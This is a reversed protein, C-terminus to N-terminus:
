RPRAIRMAKLTKGRSKLTVLYVGPSAEGVPVVCRGDRRSQRRATWLTKGAPSIVAIDVAGRMSPLPLVLYNGRFGPRRNHVAPRYRPAGLASAGTRLNQIHVNDITFRPGSSAAYYVFRLGTIAGRNLPLAQGAWAPQTFADVSVRVRTWHTGGLSIDAGWYGGDAIDSQAFEVRLHANESSAKIDFVISHAEGISVATGHENMTAEIGAYPHAAGAAPLPRFMLGGTGDKADVAYLLPVTSGGGPRQDTKDSIARWHGGVANRWDGDDFDDVLVDDARFPEDKGSMITLLSRARSQHYEAINDNRFRLDVAEGILFSVSGADAEGNWSASIEAGSGSLTKEAGSSQGTLVITWDADQELKMTITVPGENFDVRDPAATLPELIRILGPPPNHYYRIFATAGIAGANYNIAPELYYFNTSHNQDNPNYVWNYQEVKQADIGAQGPVSPGSVIAGVLDVSGISSANRHHLVSPGGNYHSIFSRSFPSIGAIWHIQQIVFDRYEDRGTILYAMAASFAANGANGCVGWPTNIFAGRILERSSTMPVVRNIAQNVDAFWSGTFGTEGLRTLEFAAFDGAHRYGIADYHQGVERMLDRAWTLFVDESTARYLEAAGCAMKDRWTDADYFEGGGQQDSNRQHGTCFSFAQRAKQLCREAYAADYPAYARYMLALAAAYMGPADAGNALYVTRDGSAQYGSAWVGHDAYANGVDLVITNEDIVAKLLYDTAVKVETLIDPVGDPGAQHDLGHTDDYYRPFLDYGKLLCYASFGLNLGFKVFDGADYWGGDLAHGNYSDNAHPWPTQNYFPNHPDSQSLGARQYAYFGILTNQLDAYDAATACLACICTIM